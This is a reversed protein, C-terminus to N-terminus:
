EVDDVVLINVRHIDVVQHLFGNRLDESLQVRVRDVDACFIDLCGVVVEFAREGTYADLECYAFVGYM